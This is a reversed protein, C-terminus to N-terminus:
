AIVYISGTTEYRPLGEVSVRKEPSELQSNFSVLVSTSVREKKSLRPGWGMHYYRDCETHSEALQDLVERISM